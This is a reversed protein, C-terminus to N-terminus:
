TTTLAMENFFHFRKSIPSLMLDLRSHFYSSSSSISFYANFCFLFLMLTLRVFELISNLTWQTLPYLRATIIICKKVTDVAYVAKENLRSFFNHM